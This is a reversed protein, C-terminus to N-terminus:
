VVLTLGWIGAISIIAGVIIEITKVIKSSKTSDSPMSGNESKELSM